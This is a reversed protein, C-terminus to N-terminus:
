ENAHRFGAQSHAAIIMHCTLDLRTPRRTQVDSVLRSATASLLVMLNMSAGMTQGYVGLRSAMHFGRTQRIANALQRSSGNHQDLMPYTARMGSCMASVERKADEHVDTIKKPGEVERRAM